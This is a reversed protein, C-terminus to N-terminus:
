AMVVTEGGNDMVRRLGAALRHAEEPNLTLRVRAPGDAPGLELSISGGPTHRLVAAGIDWTM